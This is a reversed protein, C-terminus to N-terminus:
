ARGAGLTRGGLKHAARKCIRSEASPVIITLKWSWAFRASKGEPVGRGWEGLAWEAELTDLAAPLLASVMDQFGHM